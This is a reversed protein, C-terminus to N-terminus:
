AKEEKFNVRWMGTLLKQMLAQKQLITKEKIKNLINLEEEVLSLEYIIEQQVKL